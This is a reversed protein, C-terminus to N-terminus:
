STGGDAEDTRRLEDVAIIADSGDSFEVLARMNRVSGELSIVCAAKGKHCGAIVEVADNVVLPVKQSRLGAYFDERLQELTRM